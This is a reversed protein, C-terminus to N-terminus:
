DTPTVFTKQRGNLINDIPFARLSQVVQIANKKRYRLTTRIDAHGLVDKMDQIPVGSDLYMTTGTRRWSHPGIKCIPRKIYQKIDRIIVAQMGGYSLRTGRETTFVADEGEVAQRHKRRYRTLVRCLEPSLPVPREEHDKHGFVLAFGQALFIKSWDLSAVEELRACTVSFFLHLCYDRYACRDGSSKVRRLLLQVEDPTFIEPEREEVKPAGVKRMPSQGFAIYEERECFNLFAKLNRYHVAIGASSLGDNPADARAPEAGTMWILWARIHTPTIEDLGLDGHRREWYRRTLSLLLKYSESMNRATQAILYDDFAEGFRISSQTSAIV